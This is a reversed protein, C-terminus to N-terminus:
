ALVGWVVWSSLSACVGAVVGIALFKLATGAGEGSSEGQVVEIVVWDGIKENSDDEGHVM